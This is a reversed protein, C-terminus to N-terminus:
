VVVKGYWSVRNGAILVDHKGTSMAQAIHIAFEDATGEVKSPTVTAGDIKVAVSTTDFNFCRITNADEAYCFPPKDVLHTIVERLGDKGWLNIWDGVYPLTKIQPLFLDLMSIAIKITPKSFQKANKVITGYLAETIMSTAKEGAYIGAGDVVLDLLRKQIDEFKLAM